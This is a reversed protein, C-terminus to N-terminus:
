TSSRWCRRGHLWRSEYLKTTTHSPRRDGGDASGAVGISNRRSGACQGTFAWCRRRSWRRSSPWCTTSTSATSQRALGGGAGSQGVDLGALPHGRDDIRSRCASALHPASARALLALGTLGFPATVTDGQISIASPAWRRGADGRVAGGAALPGGIRAPLRGGPRADGVLVRQQRWVRWPPLNDGSGNSGRRGPETASTVNPSGHARERDVTWSM